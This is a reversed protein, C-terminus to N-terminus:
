TASSSIASGARTANARCICSEPLAVFATTGEGPKTELWARAGLSAAASRVMTLGLGTNQASKDLRVYPEFVAETERPDFGPGDDRVWVVVEGAQERSGIQVRGKPSVCAYRLANDILNLFITELQRVRGRVRPLEDVIEVEVRRRALLPRYGDLVTAVVDFLKVEEVPAAASGIEGLLLLDSVLLRMRVSAHEIHRLSDVFWLPLRLRAHQDLLSAIESEINGLPGRLDHATAFAFEELREKEKELAEILARNREELEMTKIVLVEGALPGSGLVADVEGRRIHELLATEESPQPRAAARPLRAKSRSAHSRAPPLHDGAPARAADTWSGAGTVPLTATGGEDSLRRAASSCARRVVDVFMEFREERKAAEPERVALSALLEDRRSRLEDVVADIGEHMVM